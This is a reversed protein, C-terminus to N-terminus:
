ETQAGRSATVPNTLLEEMAPAKVLSDISMRQYEIAEGFTWAGADGLQADLRDILEPSAANKIVVAGFEHLRSVM